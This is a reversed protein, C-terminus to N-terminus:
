WLVHESPLDALHLFDDKLRYQGRAYPSCRLIRDSTMLLGQVPGHSKIALVGFHSCSPRFQCVSGEQSSFFIQYVRIMSTFLLQLPTTQDLPSSQSAKISEYTEEDGSASGKELSIHQGASDQWETEMTGLAFQASSGGIGAAVMLFIQLMVKKM